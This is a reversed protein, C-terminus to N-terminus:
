EDESKPKTVTRYAIEHTNRFEKCDHLLHYKLGTKDFDDEGCFPCVIPSIGSMNNEKTEEEILEKIVYGNSRWCPCHSNRHGDGDGVKKGGGHLNKKGCKPCIFQLTNNKRVVPFQPYEKSMM